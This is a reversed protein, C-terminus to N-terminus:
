AVAGKKLHTASGTGEGRVEWNHQLRVLGVEKTAAQIVLPRELAREEYRFIGEGDFLYLMVEFTGSLLALNPLNLVLEGSAGRLDIRDLQTGAAACLTKDQRVFAVGLQIPQRDALPNRWEITVRLSEGTRVSQAPAGDAYEIRAASIQPWSEPRQQTGQALGGEIHERQWAAYTNTVTTSDGACRVEGDGLWLAEDCLQRVDYLSHSCFLITKGKSRFNLMRDVCKKQFYMDGVAFVEDLILLEPDFGLAAAFGLRMGMGSSYTRVPEDIADGLEAFELIGDLRNQAERRSFGNLVGHMIVNERGTFELHFGTGLELLSAVRGSVRYRGASAATTGALVKLLTSKGAGNAGVLGFAGGRTLKLNVDRLAWNLEHGHYHGGSLVELVRAGVGKYSRYAKGLGEAELVVDSKKGKM